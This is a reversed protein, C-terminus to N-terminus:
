VGVVSSYFIDDGGKDGTFEGRLEGAAGGGRGGVVGTEAVSEATGAVGFTGAVGITGAVGRLMVMPVGLRLVATGLDPMVGPLAIAGGAM